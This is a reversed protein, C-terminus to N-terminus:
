KGRAWHNHCTGGEISMLPICACASSKWIIRRIAKPGVHRRFYVLNQSAKQQSSYHTNMSSLETLFVPISIPASEVAPREKQCCPLCPPRLLKTQKHTKNGGRVRPRRYPLQMRILKDKHPQNTETYLNGFVSDKHQGNSACDPM